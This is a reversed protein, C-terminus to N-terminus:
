HKSPFWTHQPALLCSVNARSSYKVLNVSAFHCTKSNYMSLEDRCDISRAQLSLNLAPLARTMAAEEITCRNKDVKYSSSNQCKIHLPGKIGWACGLTHAVWLLKKQTGVMVKLALSVWEEAQLFSGRFGLYLCGQQWELKSKNRLQAQRCACAKEWQWRPM